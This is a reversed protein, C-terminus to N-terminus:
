RSDPPTEGVLQLRYRALVDRAIDELEELDYNGEQALTQLKVRIDQTPVQDLGLLKSKRDLIKLIRDQADLNPAKETTTASPYNARIMDDLQAVMLRRELEANTTLDDSLDRLADATYARAERVSIGLESATQEFPIARKRAALCAARLKLVDAPPLVEISKPSRPRHPGPGPGRPPIRPRAHSQPQEHPDRPPPLQKPGQNLYEARIRKITSVSVGIESAIEADTAGQQAMRFLTEQIQLRSVAEGQRRAYGQYHKKPRPTPSTM